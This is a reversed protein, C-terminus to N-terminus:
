GLRASRWRQPRWQTGRIIAFALALLRTKYTFYCPIETMYSDRCCLVTPTNLPLVSACVPAAARGGIFLDGTRGWFLDVDTAVPTAVTPTYNFTHQTNHTTHRSTTYNEQLSLPRLTLATSRNGYYILEWFLDVDTTVPTAVTPTYNFTHQANHTTHRSTTYNEQLSPQQLM